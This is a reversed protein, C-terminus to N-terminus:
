ISVLCITPAILEPVNMPSNTVETWTAGVPNNTGSIFFHIASAWDEAVVAVLKNDYLQLGIFADYDAMLADFTAALNELRDSYVGGELKGLYCVNYPLVLPHSTKYYIGQSVTGGAFSQIGAGGGNTIMLVQTNGWCYYLTTGVVVLGYIGPGHAVWSGAPAPSAFTTASGLEPYTGADFQREITFVGNNFSALFPNAYTHQTFAAPDHTHSRVGSVWVKGDFTVKDRWYWGDNTDWATGTSRKPLNVNSWVGAANRVKLYPTVPGAGQEYVYTPFVVLEGAPTIALRSGAAIVSGYTITQELVIAAGDVGSWSYVYLSAPMGSGAGNTYYLILYEANAEDYVIDCPVHVAPTLAGADGEATVDVAGYLGNDVRPTPDLPGSVGVPTGGAGEVMFLAATPVLPQVFPILELKYESGVPYKLIALQLANSIYLWPHPPNAPYPQEEKVGIDSADFVGDVAGGMTVGALTSEGGRNVWLREETLRVNELHEFMDPAIRGRDNNKDMGRFGPLGAGVRFNMVSTGPPVTLPM